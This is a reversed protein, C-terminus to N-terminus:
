RPRAGISIPAGSCHATRKEVSSVQLPHSEPSLLGCNRAVRLYFHTDVFVSDQPSIVNVSRVTGLLREKRTKFRWSKKTFLWNFPNDGRHRLQINDLTGDPYVMQARKWKKVSVPLDRQLASLKQESAYIRRVPLGPESSGFLGTDVKNEFANLRRLLSNGPEIFQYLSKHSASWERYVDNFLVAPVSFVAAVFLFVVAITPPSLGKM